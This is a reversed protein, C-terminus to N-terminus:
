KVSVISGLCVQVVGSSSKKASNLLAQINSQFQSLVFM